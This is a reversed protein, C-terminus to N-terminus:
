RTSGCPTAPMRREMVSRPWAELMADIAHTGSDPALRDDADEPGDRVVGDDGDALAGEDGFQDLDGSAVGDGAIQGLLPRVDAHLGDDGAGRLRQEHHAVAADGEVNEFGPRAPIREWRNTGPADVEDIRAKPQGAGDRDVCQLIEGFFKM